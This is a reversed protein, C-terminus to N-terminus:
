DITSPPALRGTMHEGGHGTDSEVFAVEDEGLAGLHHGATAVVAGAHLLDDLGRANGLAGEIM